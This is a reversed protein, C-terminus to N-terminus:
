NTLKCSLFILQYADIFLIYNTVNLFTITLEALGSKCNLLIYSTVSVESYNATLTDNIEQIM